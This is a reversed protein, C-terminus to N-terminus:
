NSNEKKESVNKRIRNTSPVFKYKPVIFIDNEEEVIEYLNNQFSYSTFACIVSNLERILREKNQSLINKNLIIGTKKLNYIRQEIGERTYIPLIDKRIIKKFFLETSTKIILKEPKEKINEKDAVIYEFNKRLKYILETAAKVKSPNEESPINVTLIDPKHHDIFWYFGEKWFHNLGAVEKKENMLAVTYDRYDTDVGYFM